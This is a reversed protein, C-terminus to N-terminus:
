IRAVTMLCLILFVLKAITFTCIAVEEGPNYQFDFNADNYVIVERTVERADSECYFVIDSDITTVGTEPLAGTIEIGYDAMAAEISNVQSPVTGITNCDFSGLDLNSPCTVTQANTTLCFLCCVTCVLLLKAQRLLEYTNLM